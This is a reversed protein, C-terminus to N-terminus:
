AEEALAIIETDQKSENITINENSNKTLLSNNGKRINNESISPNYETSSARKRQINNNIHELFQL